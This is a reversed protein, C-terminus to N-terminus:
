GGQVVLKKNAAKWLVHGIGFLIAIWILQTVISVIIENKPTQGLYISIPIFYISEFPTFRIIERLGEPMFWLPVLAGSFIMIAADKITILSFTYYFWFSSIWVIFNLLYLVLYGLIVSIAFCVGMAASFPPQLGFILVSIILAPILQMVLRFVLTGINCSFIYFRFSIPKLLDSSILGSKVKSEILYEDMMFVCQMLFGLVLYTAITKFQKGEIVDGGNYIAKWININVFIIIITNIIGAFYDVKYVTNNRFSKKIFELYPRIM